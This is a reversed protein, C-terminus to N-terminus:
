TPESPAEGSSRSQSPPPPRGPAAGVAGDRAFRRRSGVKANPQDNSGTTTSGSAATAMPQIMATRRTVGRMRRVRHRAAPRDREEAPEGRDGDGQLRADLAVVRREERNVHDLVDQQREDGRRENGQARRHRQGQPDRRWPDAPPPEQRDEM